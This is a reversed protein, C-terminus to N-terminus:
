RLSKTVRIRNSRVVRWLATRLVTPDLQRDGSGAASLEAKPVTAYTVSVMLSTRVEVPTGDGANTIVM